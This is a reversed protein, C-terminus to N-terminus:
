LIYVVGNEDTYLSGDETQVPSIFGMEAVLRLARIEDWNREIDMIKNNLVPLVTKLSETTVLLKEKM